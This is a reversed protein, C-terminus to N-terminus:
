FDSIRIIRNWKRRCVSSNSDRSVRSDISVIEEERVCDAFLLFVFM